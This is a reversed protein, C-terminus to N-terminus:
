RAFELAVGFTLAGPVGFTLAGPVDFTIAVGGVDFTVTTRGGLLPQGRTTTVAGVFPVDVGRDFTNPFKPLRRDGPHAEQQGYGDPETCLGQAELARGMCDESTGM